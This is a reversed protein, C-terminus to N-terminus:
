PTPNFCRCQGIPKGCRPCLEQLPFVLQGDYSRGHNRQAEIASFLIAFAASYFVMWHGSFGRWVVAPPNTGGGKGTPAQMMFLLFNVFAYSFFGYVMYRMWDPSGKLVLKWFDKRRTTGVLRQAAFVAPFWVVFIGIHLGWFFELPAVRQGLLAGIHVWLSLVLGAVSLATFLWLFPTVWDPFVNARGVLENPEAPPRAQQLRKIEPELLASQSPKAANFHVITRFDEFSNRPKRRQHSIPKTFAQTTSEPWLM